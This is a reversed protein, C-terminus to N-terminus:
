SYICIQIWSHFNHVKRAQTPQCTMTIQGNSPYTVPPCPDTLFRLSINLLLTFSVMLNSVYCSLLSSYNWYSCWLDQAMMRGELFTPGWEPSRTTNCILKHIRRGRYRSDVSNDAGHVQISIRYLRESRAQILEKKIAKKRPDITSANTDHLASIIIFFLLFACAHQIWLFLDLFIGCLDGYEVLRRRQCQVLKGTNSTVFNTSRNPVLPPEVSSENHSHKANADLDHRSCLWMALSVVLNFWYQRREM